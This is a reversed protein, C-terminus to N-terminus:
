SAAALAEGAAAQERQEPESVPEGARARAPLLQSLVILVPMTALEVILCHEIAALYGGHRLVAFFVTGMVAVGVAGGLQQGANLVGSASGLEAETVSALIFDFLTSVLMGVGAGLLVEPGVMALSSVQLGHVALVHHLWVAAAAIIVAGIQLVARGLRPVLLTAALM